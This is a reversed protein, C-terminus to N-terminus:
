DKADQDAFYIDLLYALEEGNDGDGGFEFDFYGSGRERDIKDLAQLLEMSRADHDVGEEWRREVENVRKKAM